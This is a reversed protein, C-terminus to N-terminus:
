NQRYGYPDKRAPRRRRSGSHPRRKYPEEWNYKDVNLTFGTEEEVGLVGSLQFVRGQWQYAAPEGVGIFGGGQYVFRKIATM